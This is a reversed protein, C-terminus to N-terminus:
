FKKFGCTGIRLYYTKLMDPDHKKIKCYNYPNNNEIRAML